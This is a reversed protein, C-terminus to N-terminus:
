RLPPRADATRVGNEVKVWAHDTSSGRRCSFWYTIPARPDTRVVRARSMGAVMAAGMRCREIGPYTYDVATYSCVGDYLGLCALVVLTYM